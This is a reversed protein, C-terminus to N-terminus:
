LRWPCAIVARKWSISGSSRKYKHGLGWSNLFSQFQSNLANKIWLKPLFFVFEYNNFLKNRNIWMKIIKDTTDLIIASSMVSGFRNQSFNKYELRIECTSVFVTLKFLSSWFVVIFIKFAYTEVVFQKIHETCKICILLCVCHLCQYHHCKIVSLLLFQRYALIYINFGNRFNYFFNWLILESDSVKVQLYCKGM